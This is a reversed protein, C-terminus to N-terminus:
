EVEGLIAKAVDLASAFAGEVTSASSDRALAEGAFYLKRGVPKRLETAAGGSEPTSYSYAGRMFPENEWVFTETTILEKRLEEVSISFIHSLSTLSLETFEEATVDRLKHASPGAVWGTLTTHPQPFQTWWSPIVEKSFMFFLKDFAKERLGGWWKSRFRLLVKIAPGFGLKEAASVKEPLAPIFNLESILPVPVTVVVSSAEHVSGDACTIRVGDGSTDVTTVAANLLIEVGRMRLESEIFRALVGYGGQLRREQWSKEDLIEDRFALISSRAPDGADYGEVERCVYHRLKEHHEAPFYRDLFEMVTMDEKLERLKAELEPRHFQPLHHVPSPDGDVASWWEESHTFTLGAEEVLKTTIPAPGHVFEAGGMAEYGFKEISLPYIRGGIRDRAELITVTKGARALERAAM